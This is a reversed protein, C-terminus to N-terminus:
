TEGGRRAGRRAQRQEPPHHLRPRENRGPLLRRHRRRLSHGLFLSKIRHLFYKVICFYDM